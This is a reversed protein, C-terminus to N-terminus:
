SSWEPEYQEPLSEPQEGRAAEHEKMDENMAEGPTAPKERGPHVLGTENRGVEIVEAEIKM